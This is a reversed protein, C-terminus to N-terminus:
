LKEFNFTSNMEDKLTMSKGSITYTFTPGWENVWALNGKFTLKSGDLTYTGTASYGSADKETVSGSAGFEFTEGAWDSTASAAWGTISKLKWKTNSLADRSTEPKEPVEPVDPKDPEDKDCSTLMASGLTITLCLIFLRFFVKLDMTFLSITTAEM